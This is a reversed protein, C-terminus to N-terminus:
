YLTSSPVRSSALAVTAEWFSWLPQALLSGVSGRGAGTGGGGGEGSLLRAATMMRDFSESATAELAAQEEREDKTTARIAVGAVESAGHALAQQRAASQRAGEAEASADLTDLRKRVDRARRAAARWARRLRELEELHRRYEGIGAVLAACAGKVFSGELAEKSDLRAGLVMARADEDKLEAALAALLYTETKRKRKGALAVGGGTAAEGGGGGKSRKSPGGGGARPGLLQTLGNQEWAKLQKLASACNKLALECGRKLAVAREERLSGEDFGVCAVVVGRGEAAARTGGAAVEARQQRQHEEVGEIRSACVCLREYGCRLGRLASAIAAEAARRREPAEASALERAVKAEAVAEAHAEAAKDRSEVAAALAASAEKKAYAARTSIDDLKYVASLSLSPADDGGASGAEPARRPRRKADSAVNEAALAEAVRQHFAAEARDSAQTAVHLKQECTNARIEAKLYDGLTVIGQHLTAEAKKLEAVCQKAENTRVSQELAALRAQQAVILAITRGVDPTGLFNDDMVWQALNAFCLGARKSASWAEYMKVAASTRTLLTQLEDRAETLKKDVTKLGKSRKRLSREARRGLARGVLGRAPPGGEVTKSSSCGMRNVPARALVARARLDEEIAARGLTTPTHPARTKAFPSVNETLGGV